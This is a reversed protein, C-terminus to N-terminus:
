RVPAKGVGGHIRLAAPFRLDWWSRDALLALPCNQSPLDALGPALSFSGIRHGLADHARLMHGM